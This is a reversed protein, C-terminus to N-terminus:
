SNIFESAYKIQSKQPNIEQALELLSNFYMKAEEIENLQQAALAAGNISNFRNPNRVLSKKYNELALRPKGITMYMEGLMERMPLLEGPTVPSKTTGDEMLAAENLIRLGEDQDGSMFVKWALVATKQIEIQKAWYAKAYSKGMTLHLSDLIEYTEQAIDLDGNRAAGIGKAFYSLASFQPHEEWPFVNDFHLELKSAKKWDQNELSIRAPLGALAYAVVGSNQFPPELSKLV